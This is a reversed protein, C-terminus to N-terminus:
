RLVVPTGPLRDIEVKVNAVSAASSVAYAFDSEEALRSLIELTDEDRARIEVELSTRHKRLTTEIRGLRETELSMFLTVEDEYDATPERYTELYLSTVEGGIEIPLEVLFEPSPLANLINVAEIQARIAAMLDNETHTSESSPSAEADRSEGAMEDFVVAAGGVAPRADKEDTETADAIASEAPTYLFEAVAKLDDPASGKATLILASLLERVARKGRRGQLKRLRDLMQGLVADGALYSSLAALISADPSIGSQSLQSYLMALIPLRGPGDARLQSFLGMTRATVPIEAQALLAAIEKAAATVPLGLRTLLTEIDAPIRLIGAAEGAGGMVRFVFLDPRTEALLLTLPQGTRLNLVTNALLTRNGILIEVQEGRTGTVIAQYKGGLRLGLQEVGSIRGVQAGAQSSISGM